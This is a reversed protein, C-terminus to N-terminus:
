LAADKGVPLGECRRDAGRSAASNMSCMLSIRIAMQDFINPEIETFEFLVFLDGCVFSAM